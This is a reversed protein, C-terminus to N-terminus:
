PKGWTWARAPLAARPQTRRTYEVSRWVARVTVAVVQALPAHGARWSRWGARVEPLAPENIDWARSEDIDQQLQARLYPAVRPIPSM